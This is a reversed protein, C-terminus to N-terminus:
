AAMAYHARRHGTEPVFFVRVVNDAPELDDDASVDEGDIADFLDDLDIDDMASRFASNNRDKRM